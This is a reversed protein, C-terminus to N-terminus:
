RSLRKLFVILLALVLISSVATVIAWVIVWSHTRVFMGSALLIAVAVYGSALLSSARKAPPLIFRVVIAVVIVIASSVLLDWRFGM